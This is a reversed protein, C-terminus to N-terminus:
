LPAIGVAGREEGASGKGKERNTDNQDSRTIRTTQKKNKEKKKREKKREELGALALDALVRELRHLQRARVLVRVVPDCLALRVGVVPVAALVREQGGVAHVVAADCAVPVLLVLGAALQGLGRGGLPDEAVSGHVADVRDTHCLFM